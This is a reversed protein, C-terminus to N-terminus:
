LIVIGAALAVRNRAFKHWILSWQSAVAIAAPDDGPRLPSVAPRDEAFDTAISM